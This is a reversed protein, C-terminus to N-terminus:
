SLKKNDTIRLRQAKQRVCKFSRIQSQCNQPSMRRVHQWGRHVVFPVLKFSFWRRINIQNCEYSRSRSRMVKFSWRSRPTRFVYSCVSFSTEVDISEFTIPCSCYVSVCVSAVSRMLVGCKHTIFIFSKSPLSM